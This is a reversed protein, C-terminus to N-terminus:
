ALIGGLSRGLLFLLPAALAVFLRPSRAGRDSRLLLAGSAVAVWVETALTTAAAGEIGHTPVAFANAVTNLVLASAAVALAANRAGSAVLATHLVAGAHVAAGAGLLLM